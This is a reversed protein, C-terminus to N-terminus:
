EPKVGSDLLHAVRATLTRTKGAGPGAVVAVRRAQTEVAQRQSEDLGAQPVPPAEEEPPPAAKEVPRKKARPARPVAVPGFLSVQGNFAAAEEAPLLRVKGYVGDYGAERVVEGARLRRVAEGVAPGAASGIAEIPVERLIAFEPGLAALLEEYLAQTRKSAESRGTANAIVEPLPVLSEFPKSHPCPMGPLRDALEEVRHEVGITLRKGCV